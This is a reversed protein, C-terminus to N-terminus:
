QLAESNSDAPQNLSFRIVETEDVVFHRVGTKDRELPDAYIKYHQIRGDSARGETILTFRYGSKVGSALNTDVAWLEDAKGPKSVLLKLNAPFGEEPHGKEYRKAAFALSRLSGVASSENAAMPNGHHFPASAVVLFLLFIELYGCATGAIAKMRTHGAQEKVDRKLQRLVWHGLFAAVLPCLLVLALDVAVPIPRSIETILSVMVLPPIAAFILSLNAAREMKERVRKMNYTHFQSFIDGFNEFNHGRKGFSQFFGLGLARKPQAFM